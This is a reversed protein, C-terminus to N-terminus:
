SHSSRGGRQKLVICKSFEARCIFPPFPHWPPRWRETCACKDLIRLHFFVFRGVAGGAASSRRRQGAASGGTNGSATLYKLFGARVARQITGDLGGAVGLVGWVCGVAEHTFGGAASIAAPPPDARLPPHGSDDPIRQEPTDLYM